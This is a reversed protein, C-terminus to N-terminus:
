DDKKQQGLNIADSLWSEADVCFTNFVDLCTETGNIEGFLPVISASIQM